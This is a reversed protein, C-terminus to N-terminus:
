QFPPRNIPAAARRMLLGVRFLQHSPVAVITVYQGQFLRVSILSLEILSYKAARVALNKNIMM